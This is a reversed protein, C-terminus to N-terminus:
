KGGTQETLIAMMREISGLVARHIIVPRDFGVKVTQEVMDDYTMPENESAKDPTGTKYQLNFRKPM